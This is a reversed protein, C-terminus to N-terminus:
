GPHLVYKGLKIAVHLLVFMVGISTWLLVEEDVYEFVKEMDIEIGISELLSVGKRLFFFFLFAMVAELFIGGVEELVAQGVYTLIWDM